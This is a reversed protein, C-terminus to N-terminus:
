GKRKRKFRPKTHEDNVNLVSFAFAQLGQVEQWIEQVIAKNEKMVRTNFDPTWPWKTSTKMGLNETLTVQAGMAVDDGAIHQNFRKFDFVM